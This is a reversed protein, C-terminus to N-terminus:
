ACFELFDDEELDKLFDLVRHKEDFKEAIEIM